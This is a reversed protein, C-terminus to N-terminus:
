QHTCAEFLRTFMEDNYQEVVKPFRVVWTKPRVYLVSHDNLRAAFHDGSNDGCDTVLDGVLEMVESHNAGDFLVAKASMPRTQFNEIM